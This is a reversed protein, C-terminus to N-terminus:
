ARGLNGLILRRHIYLESLVARFLELLRKGETADDGAAEMRLIRQEQEAIRQEAEAIHRDAQALHEEESYM